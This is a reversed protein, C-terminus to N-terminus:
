KIVKFASTRGNSQIKVLYIGKLLHSVDLNPQGFATSVVQGTISIIELKDYTGTVFLKDTIPNPAISIFFNHDTDKINQINAVTLMITAKSGFQGNNYYIEDETTNFLKIYGSGYGINIGDGYTDYVEVKHCGIMIPVFDYERVTIGNSSLDDWPGDELLITGDPNFIKFSNESAYRDTALVFKMKVDGQPVDKKITISKSPTSIPENNIKVIEVNLTQEQNVQVQFLPLQITDSEQYAITRRDWILTNTNEGDITYSFEVSSIPLMGQNQIKIYAHADSSCDIIKIENLEEIRVALAPINTLIVNAQSGTIITEENEAVYVLFVLDELIVEIDNFHQPIDYEFTHSWFSGTNTPTVDMGWQGTIFDRLMHMHKYLHGVMMEPYYTIGGTQPGLINDQLMAVTLKNVTQVANGTYYVEVLLTLKRTNLDIMGEAAVNLCSPEVFTKAAAVEWQGRNYLYYSNGMLAMGPFAYRNVSGAPYGTGGQNMGARNALADGYPTTYNPPGETAFFGQHVSVVFFRGPNADMLLHATRHADPCNVCTKGTFEELIANKNSPETSVITQAFATASFCAIIIFTLIKKM